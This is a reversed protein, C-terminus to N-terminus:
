FQQLRTCNMPIFGRPRIPVIRAEVLLIPINHPRIKNQSNLLKKELPKTSLAQFEVEMEKAGLTLLGEVTLSNPANSAATNM